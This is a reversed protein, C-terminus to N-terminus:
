SVIDWDSDSEKHRLQPQGALIWDILDESDVLLQYLLSCWVGKISRGMIAGPSWLYHSLIQVEPRWRQLAHKTEPRSTLFKMLTSKGSGPKGSVWYLKSESELWDVFNDWPPEVRSRGTSPKTKGNKGDLGLFWLCKDPYNEAIQNKRANMGPFKLSGLFRERAREKSSQVDLTSMQASLSSGVDTTSATVHSKLSVEKAGLESTFHRNVSEQNQVLESTIHTKLVNAERKVLASM